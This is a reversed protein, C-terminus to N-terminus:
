LVYFFLCRSEGEKMHDLLQLGYLEVASFFRSM